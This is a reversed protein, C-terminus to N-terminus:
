NSNLTLHIDEAGDMMEDHGDPYVVRIPMNVSKGTHMTLSLSVKTTNHERKWHVHALGFSGPVGFPVKIDLTPFLSVRPHFTMTKWGPTGMRVGAVETTFEYIPSSGWAHCDSRQSVTDELWTTLNLSLQDKWPGWFGHFREDYLSGGVMSMARLTYFSMATSAQTFTRAGSVATCESIIDFALDGTAAGSLVAWVQGHQSYDNDCAAESALGDTFFHGDFCHAKLALLTEDARLQYEGAVASRGVSVLVDSMRKLTYAYLMNTYSAFGTREAAPPIGLPKWSDAWDVFDWQESSDSLRILGLKSDIRRAFSDLVGDCVPLFQRVFEGDHFYEFHDSIMCIWFLSFHPILQLQHAPARSATLRFQQRTHTTFNSSQRAHNDASPVEFDALVQLPYKTTTIDIRKMTLDSLASVTIDLALFRFTRFHFPAFVDEDSCNSNYNLTSRLKQDAVGSICYEDKPGLLKKGTDRRDGKRRIWPVIDPVDEYCESYVVQMTSGAHEPCKFRFYLLATTHNEVELELRHRSGAPLCIGESTTDHPGLLAEEWNARPQNSEINHIAKFTVPEYRPFPILRPSLKWPAALGHSTSFVLPKAPIWNPQTTYQGVKEYIHLFADELINTPLTTSKDLATEWSDNTQVDIAPAPDLGGNRILLGPVHLRPFSTAHTTAHYLRLVRVSITNAGLRLYPQIDLEDYFWLHRDGKVPGVSVLDSNVYLKYKTDATIHIHVPKSISETVTITKRFHVFAGASDTSHETWEPHWIWMAM